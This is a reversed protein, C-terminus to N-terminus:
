ALMLRYPKQTIDIKCYEGDLKILVHDKLSGQFKIM